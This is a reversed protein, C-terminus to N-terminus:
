NDGVGMWSYYPMDLQFAFLLNGQQTLGKLYDEDVPQAVIGSDIQKKLRDNEM